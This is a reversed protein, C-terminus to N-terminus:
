ANLTVQHEVIEVFTAWVPVMVTKEEFHHKEFCVFFESLIKLSNKLFDDDVVKLFRGIQDCQVFEICMTVVTSM